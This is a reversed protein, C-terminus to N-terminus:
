LAGPTSGANPVRRAVREATWAFPDTAPGQLVSVEAVSTPALTVDRELLFLDFPDESWWTSWPDPLSRGIRKRWSGSAGARRAVITRLAV